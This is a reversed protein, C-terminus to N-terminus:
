NAGGGSKLHQKHDMSPFPPPSGDEPKVDITNAVTIVKGKHQFQAFSRYFGAKPFVVHFVPDHVTGNGLNTAQALLAAGHSHGAHAGGGGSGASENLPHAHVFTKLDKSIIVLHGLAGLYPELDTVTATGISIGYRMLSDRGVFFPGGDCRMRMTYGDIEQVSDIDEVLAMPAPAAGPVGIAATPVQQGLGSPTFDAFFTFEGPHPFALALSFTGDTLHKPHEHSYWSLDNSVTLFHLVQEHVVDLKDVRLGIPDVLEIKLAIPQGAEIVASEATVAVSYPIEGVKSLAMRCVPCKGANAYVKGPECHMDCVWQEPAAAALREIMARISATASMAGDLKGGDSAAHLAGASAALERGAVNADRVKDRPVVADDLAVQGAFTAL